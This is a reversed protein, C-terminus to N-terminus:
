YVQVARSIESTDGPMSFGHTHTSIRPPTALGTTRTRTSTATIWKGRLDGDTEITFEEDPELLRESAIWTEAQGDETSAYLDVLFWDGPMSVSDLRGRVTTKNRASDYLTSFIEPVNSTALDLNADIGLYRNSHISNQRIAIDCGFTRAVGWEGNSAIVNDTVDADGFGNRDTHLDLYIGSGGNGTIRNRAILWRGTDVSDRCVEWNFPAHKTEIAPWPFNKISLDLVQLECGSALLFANGETLLSGDIDVDHEDPGDVKVIGRLEPLPTLPRITGDVQFDITCPQLECLMQSDLIAQRLSGSGEDRTNTVVIHRVLPLTFTFEANAVMAHAAFDGGSRRDPAVVSAAVRFGARNALEAHTCVVRDASGSCVPDDADVFTGGEPLTLTLM